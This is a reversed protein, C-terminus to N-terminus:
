LLFVCDHITFQKVIGIANYAIITEGRRGEQITGSIDRGRVVICKKYIIKVTNKTYLPVINKVTNPQPHGASRSTGRQRAPVSSPVRPGSRSGNTRGEGRGAGEGTVREGTHQFHRTEYTSNKSGFRLFCSFNPISDQSPQSAFVWRM